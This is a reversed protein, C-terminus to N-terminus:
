LDLHSGCLTLPTTRAPHVLREHCERKEIKRLSTLADQSSYLADSRFPFPSSWNPDNGSGPLSASRGELCGSPSM